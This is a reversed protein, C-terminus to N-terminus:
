PTSKRIHDIYEQIIRKLEPYDAELIQPVREILFEDSIDVPISNKKCDRLFTSINLWIKDPIRDILRGLEHRVADIEEKCDNISSPYPKEADPTGGCGLLDNVKDKITSNEFIKSPIDKKSPTSYDFLTNNIKCKKIDYVSYKYKIGQDTLFAINKKRQVEPYMDSIAYWANYLKKEIEFSKLNFTLTTNDSLTLIVM